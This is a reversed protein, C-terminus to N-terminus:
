YYFYNIMYLIILNTKKDSIILYMMDIVKENLVLIFDKAIKEFENNQNNQLVCSDVIIKFMEPTIDSPLKEIFEEFKM